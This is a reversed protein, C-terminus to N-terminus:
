DVAIVSYLYNCRSPCTSILLYALALDLWPAGDVARSGGLQAATPPPSSSSTLTEDFPRPSGHPHLAAAAVTVPPGRVAHRPRRRKPLPLSFSLSSPSGQPLCRPRRPGPRPPAAEAAPDSSRRGGKAETERVSPSSRLQPPTRPRVATGCSLSIARPAPRITRPPNGKVRRATDCPLLPGVSRHNDCM